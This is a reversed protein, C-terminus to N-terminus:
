VTPIWKIIRGTRMAEDLKPLIVSVAMNIVGDLKRDRKGSCASLACALYKKGRYEM